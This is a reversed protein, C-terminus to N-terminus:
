EALLRALARRRRRPLLLQRGQLATEVAPLARHLRLDQGQAGLDLGLLLLDALPDTLRQQLLPLIPRVADSEGGRAPRITTSKACIRGFSRFFRGFSTM